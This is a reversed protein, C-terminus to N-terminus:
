FTYKFSIYLTFIKVFFFGSKIPKVTSNPKASQNYPLCKEYTSLALDLVGLNHYISM